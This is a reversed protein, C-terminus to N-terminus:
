TSLLTSRGSLLWHYILGAADVVVMEDQIYMEMKMRVCKWSSMQGINDMGDLEGLSCCSLLAFSPIEAYRM